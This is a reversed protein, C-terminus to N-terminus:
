CFCSFLCPRDNQAILINQNVCLPRKETQAFDMGSLVTHVAEHAPDAPLFGEALHDKVAERSLVFPVDFDEASSSPNEEILRGAAIELYEVVIVAIQYIQVSAHPLM